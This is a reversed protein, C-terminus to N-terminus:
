ARTLGTCYVTSGVTFVGDVVCLCGWLSRCNQQRVHLDICNRIFCTKICANYETDSAYNRGQYRRENREPGVTCCRTPLRRPSASCTRARGPVSGRTRTTTPCWCACRCYLVRCRLACVPCLVCTRGYCFRKVDAHQLEFQAPSGVMISSCAQYLASGSTLSPSAYVFTHRRLWKVAQKPHIFFRECINNASTKGYYPHTSGISHARAAHVVSRYSVREKRLM